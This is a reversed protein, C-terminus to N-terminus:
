SNNGANPVAVDAADDDPFLEPNNTPHVEAPAAPVRSLFFGTPLTVSSSNGEKPPPDELVAAL